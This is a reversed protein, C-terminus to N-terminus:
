GAGEQARDPWREQGLSGHYKSWGPVPNDNVGDWQEFCALADELQHYCYFERAFTPDCVMVRFTFIMPAVCMWMGGGLPRGALYGHAKWWEDDM